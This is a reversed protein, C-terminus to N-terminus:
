LSSCYYSYFGDLNDVEKQNTHDDPDFAPVLNVGCFATGSKCWSGSQKSNLFDEYSLCRQGCESSKQDVMWSGGTVDDSILVNTLDNNCDFTCKGGDEESWTGDSKKCGTKQVNQILSLSFCM